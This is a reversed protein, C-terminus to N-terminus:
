QLNCFRIVLSTTDSVQIRKQGAQNIVCNSLFQVNATANERKTAFLCKLTSADNHSYVASSSSRSLRTLNLSDRTSNVCSKKCFLSYSSHICANHRFPSFAISLLTQHVQLTRLLTIHKLSSLKKQFKNRWIEPLFLQIM